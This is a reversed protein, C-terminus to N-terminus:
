NSGAGGQSAETGGSVQKFLVWGGSTANFQKDDVVKGQAIVSSDVLLAPPAVLAEMPLRTPLGAVSVSVAACALLAAFFLIARTM